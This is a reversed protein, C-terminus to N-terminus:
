SGGPGGGGAESDPLAPHRRLRPYSAGPCPHLTPPSPLLVYTLILDYTLFLLYTLLLFYTLFLLYTLLKFYTLLLLYTRLFIRLLALVSWCSGM